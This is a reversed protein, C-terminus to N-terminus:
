WAHHRPSHGRLGCTQCKGFLTPCAPPLHGHRRCFPYICLTNETCDPCDDATHGYLACRPCRKGLHLRTCSTRSTSPLFEKNPWLKLAYLVRNEGEYYWQKPPFLYAAFFPVVPIHLQALFGPRIHYRQFDLLYKCLECSMDNCIHKSPLNYNYITIVFAHVATLEKLRLPNSQMLHTRDSWLMRAKDTNSTDTVGEYRINLYTLNEIPTLEDVKPIEVVSFCFFFYGIM